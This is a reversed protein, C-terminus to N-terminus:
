HGQEIEAWLMSKGALCTIAQIHCHPKQKEFLKKNIVMVFNYTTKNLWFHSMKLSM